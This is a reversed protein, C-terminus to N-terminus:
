CYVVKKIEFESFLSSLIKEANKRVAKHASKGKGKLLVEADEGSWYGDNKKFTVKLLYDEGGKGNLYADEFRAICRAMEIKDAPYTDTVRGDSVLDILGENKWHVLTVLGVKELTCHAPHAQIRIAGKFYKM